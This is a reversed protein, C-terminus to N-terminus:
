ILEVTTRGLGQIDRLAWRADRRLDDIPSELQDARRNGPDTADFGRYRETLNAAALGYVARRYRHLHASEGDIQPAPVAALTAYGLAIRGLMWVGLEGTVSAIAEVLAARLREATVTGDLRMTERAAAPDIAPWFAGADIPPEAAPSSAPVIFGTM